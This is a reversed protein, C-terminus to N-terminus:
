AAAREFVVTLNNAPMAVIERLVLGEALARDAVVELDRVGWEANRERLSADFVENSAATHRGDRKFPGYLVLPAGAGLVRSAGRLLGETAAWPAIHILNIALVADARALPWHEACVDLEVPPELNAGVGSRHAAAVRARISELMAADPDTPQWALSPLAEAFHVVHQGTGSAIEVVRGAPPLVRKLVDLIPGKNREAAPSELMAGSSRSLSDM